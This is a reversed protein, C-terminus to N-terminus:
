QGKVSELLIELIVGNHELLLCPAHGLVIGDEAIGLPVESVEGLLRLPTQVLLLLELLGDLLDPQELLFHVCREPFEFIVDVGEEGGLRVQGRDVGVDFTLLRVIGGGVDLLAELAHGLLKLFARELHVIGRGGGLLPRETRTGGGGAVGVAEGRHHLDQVLV